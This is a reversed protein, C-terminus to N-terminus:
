YAKIAIKMGIGCHGFIGCIFYNDGRKLKIHDNGSEYVKVNAPVRCFTYDEANVKIVNHEGPNYKFVLIDGAYFKKGNSWNSTMKYTWQQNDGVYYKHHGVTLGINSIILTLVM